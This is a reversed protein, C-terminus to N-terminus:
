QESYDFPVPKPILVDQVIGGNSYVINYFWCEDLGNFNAGRFDCAQIDSQIMGWMVSCLHTQLDWIRVTGDSSASAIKQGDPSCSVSNVAGTHGTLIGIPKHTEADWIRVTKDNSGSVIKEDNQFFVVSNIGWSHGILPKGIQTQTKVNWIHITALSSGAALKKGDSSFAVSEIDGIVGRFVEGDCKHTKIDLLYITNDVSVSAVKKGNPYLAASCRSVVMSDLPPCVQTESKIDWIRITQDWGSSVVQKGDPSFFASQVCFQHGILQGTQEHTKANWICITNDDSSSVVKEDRSFSVSNIAGSHGILLKGIQKHEKVDWIRITQEGGGGAIKTGDPSFAVSNMSNVNGGIPEDIQVQAKVDWVRITSDDGGSVIRTGDRSFAVTRINNININDHYGLLPRGIQQKTKVDWIYLGECNCSVMMKGDNSLAVAEVGSLHGIFIGIQKHSKVDWMRIYGDVGGSVITQDNQSLIICNVGHTHGTIPDGIQTHTKVDWIRITEDSSGSVIKKDDSSFSVSKVGKRYGVFAAGIQEYKEADWVRITRDESGSVIKKDDSSFSVSNVSGTHGKLIGIQECTEVDWIGITKDNSGSIIKKGDSSFAVSNVGGTHGRLVGLQEHTESDWICITKDWSGSVIKTGDPSFSVSTVSRTHGSPIFNQSCIKANDFTSHPLSCRYFHVRQLDLDDYKATVRGGRSTKMIEIMNRTALPSLPSPSKLNHQQLFHEVPSEPWSSLDQKSAFDSECRRTDKTDEYSPSYAHRGDYEHVLEGIFRRVDEDVTVELDGLKDANMCNIIHKAAFVDRWIQHTFFCANQSEQLLALAECSITFPVYEASNIIKRVKEKKRGNFFGIFYSVSLVTDAEDADIEFSRKRAMSFALAPLFYRIVFEVIPKEDSRAKAKNDKLLKQIYSDLIDARRVIKDEYLDPYPSKDTYTDRFVKLYMPVRLIEVLSNSIRKMDAKGGSKSGFQRDLYQRISDAKLPLLKLRVTDTPLDKEDVRSSLFFRVSDSASMQRIEDLIVKKNEEAVENLGDVLIYYTYATNLKPANSRSFLGIVKQLLSENPDSDAGCYEQVIYKEIPRPLNDTGDHAGFDILKKVDVFIPVVGKRQEVQSVLCAYLCMLATSKGFGGEANLFYCKETLEGRMYKQVLPHNLVCTMKEQLM